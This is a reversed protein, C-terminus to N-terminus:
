RDKRKRPKALPKPWHRLIARARRDVDAWIVGTPCDPDALERLLAEADILARAQQAPTSV